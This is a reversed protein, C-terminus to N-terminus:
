NKVSKIQFITVINAVIGMFDFIASTYSKIAVDYIFWMLMTFAILLKFKKVDKINMLWIYVVTSILPLAGIYGLNNFRFTLIVSLVTIIIKEKLGLKDKYCLINRIMSLVNIIAGTMGGLIINSVVFMGIQVTQFYLIKKKQKLMGSYVMLISAVLAIINGIIISVM